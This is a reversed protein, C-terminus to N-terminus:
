ERGGGSDNHLQNVPVPALNPGRAKKLTHRGKAIYGKENIDFRDKRAPRYGEPFRNRQLGYKLRLMIYRRYPFGTVPNIGERVSDPDVYYGAPVQIQDWTEMKQVIEKKPEPLPLNRTHGSRSERVRSSNMETKTLYDALDKQGGQEYVLKYIVKGHPWCEALMIDAEPARNIVAHVHYAGKTGKEINWIAKLEIGAKKYRRRLKNLFRGWIKRAEEMDPPREQPRWTFTAFYDYESFHHQLMQWCKRARQWQNQRAMQEPTAKGKKGRAMGPAGYRGNHYESVEIARRLTQTKKIYSM